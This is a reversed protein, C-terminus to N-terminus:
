LMPKANVKDLKNSFYDEIKFRDTEFYFSNTFHKSVTSDNIKKSFEEPSVRAITNDPLMVLLEISTNEVVPIDDWSFANLKIVSNIDEMVMMLMIKNIEPSFDQQFDFKLEVKAFINQKNLFDINYIGLRRVSFSNLLSQQKILRSEEQEILKEIQAYEEKAKAYKKKAKALRKGSLLPIANFSCTEKKAIGKYTTKSWYLDIQFIQKDEDIETLKVKDWNLRLAWLPYSDDEDKVIKWKVNKYPKLYPIRKYDATLEFVFDTSDVEPNLLKEPLKPLNALASDRRNNNVTEFEGSVEWNKDDKLYFLESGDIPNEISALDINIEKGENLDLEEGNKEVRLEIMGSSQMFQNRDNLIQMPIGSLLISKATHYERVKFNLKGKVVNGKKDVFANKPIDIFTGNTRYYKLGEEAEFEVIKYEVTERYPENVGEPYSNLYMYYYYSMVVTSLLFVASISTIIKTKITLKRNLSKMM